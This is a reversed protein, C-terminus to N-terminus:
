KGEFVGKLKKMTPRHTMDMSLPTVSVTGTEMAQLDTGAPHGGPRHRMAGIWYYPEGRPDFSEIIEDGLKQRGERTVEIRTVKAAPANPFNVNMLVDRPWDVTVLKRIIQACWKEAPGFNAKGAVTGTDGDTAQSFAIAPIGFLTAEMAAAITGSYTMDEGVNRGQNIGSFMLDPKCEKMIQNVALLVCDTPTGSVSFRRPGRKKIRIPTRLSLSHGTASQETAPAVVWLEGVLPKAIKELLKIGKADIGDDNCILVRAKKLNLPANLM